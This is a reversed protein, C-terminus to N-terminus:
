PFVEESIDDGDESPENYEVTFKVIGQNLLRMFMQLARWETVSDTSVVLAPLDGLDDGKFEAKM